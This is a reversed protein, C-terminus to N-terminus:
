FSLIYIFLHDKGYPVTKKGNCKDATNVDNTRCPLIHKRITLQETDQAVTKQDQDSKRNAVPFYTSKFNCLCTSESLCLIDATSGRSTLGM